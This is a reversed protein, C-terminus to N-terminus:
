RKIGVIREIREAIARINERAVALSESTNEDRANGATLWLTPSL